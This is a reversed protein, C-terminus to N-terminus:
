FMRMDRGTNLMIDQKDVNKDIVIRSLDPHFANMINKFFLYRRIIFPNSNYAKLIQNFRETEGLSRNIRESNYSHAAFVNQKARVQFQPIQTKNYSRAENIERQQEQYAAIVSEFSGAIRIPPHMDNINVNLISIGLLSSVSTLADKLYNKIDKRGTTVIEWFENTILYENLEKEFYVELLEESSRAQYYYSFIDTIRYDFSLYPFIYNNDGTLFPVERGHDVTWLLAVNEDLSIIGIRATHIKKSDVVIINDFPYPLKFHVGPELPESNIIRGNRLHIGQQNFDIKVFVTSFYIIFVIILVTWFSFIFKFVPSHHIDTKEKIYNVTKNYFHKDFLLSVIKTTKFDIDIKKDKKFVCIALNIMIEIAFSFILLSILVAVFKDINVGFTYLLLSLGTLISTVFDSRTHLSDSMLSISNEETAVTHEIKFVAYSLISFFLFVIGAVTSNEVIVEKVAYVKAFINISVILLVFGIIFSVVEEYSIVFYKNEKPKDSFKISIYVLFSTAIDAFSQWAEALIALSGTLAFMIYKVITIIINLFTVLLATKKKKDM